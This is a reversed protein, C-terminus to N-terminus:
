IIENMTKYLRLRSAVMSYTKHIKNHGVETFDRVIKEKNEVEDWIIFEGTETILTKGLAINNSKNYNEKGKIWIDDAYEYMETNWKENDEIGEIQAYIEGLVSQEKGNRDLVKEFLKVDNVEVFGQSTKVKIRRGILPIENSFKLGRRWINYNTCKNLMKLISYSWLYQGKLDNDDLEEWDKFWINKNLEPSYVPITHTTTNFCYLINSKINVPKARTDDEVCKWQKDLGYILHSGSVIIGNVSYLKVDKGDMKIIAKIKSYNSLEDGLKIESIPVLIVENDRRIQIQTNEAFCFGGKDNNAQQAIDGSMISSLALVTSVITALVAMILPIFPFLVFILIIMIAIMIGCIILVVKIIFQITNLMGRFMTIGTYLMSMVMANARRMAMRLYQMIRSMEYVSANFRRMYQDLFGLLTNYLKQAIEHVTNVMDVDSGTLNTQKGFIANIPSM